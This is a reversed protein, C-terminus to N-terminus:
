TGSPTRTPNKSEQTGPSEVVDPNPQTDSPVDAPSVRQPRNITVNTSPAAQVAMLEPGGLEKLAAAALAPVDRVIRKLIMENLEAPNPAEEEGFGAESRLAAGTLEFRDYAEQANKSRDPRVTLESPDYWVILRGGSPGTLDADMAKLMPYLLGTTLSAAILEVDPAVNSKIASEEIQAASNGTWFPKGGRRALWTGHRTTPCWITGTYSIVTDTAARGPVGMGQQRASDVPSTVARDSGRVCWGIRGGSDARTRSTWRGSLICAFEYADLADAERQWIDLFGQRYHWGDGQCSVDIFLDLQARTLSRIFEFDVRKGPAVGIFPESADKNLYFATVPQGLAAPDNIVSERWAPYGLSNGGAVPRMSQSVPGFLATLAARIREVRPLNVSHSQFITVRNQHISGETWLWAVMEVFADSYKAESPLDGSPASVIVRHQRHMEMTTTWTRRIEKRVAGKGGLHKLAPWRHNMTTLSNHLASDFLRMPEDVVDARYVNEVPSWHTLGTVHDLTRVISGVEIQDHHVWGSQTLIETEDDTCWHNTDGMGTIVEIPVNITTAVRRLASDRQAILEPSVPDGFKIIQMLLKPDFNEPDNCEFGIPIPLAAAPSMPDAIAQSAVDVFIKAFPDVAEMGEAPPGQDPISLRARDYLMVGNGVLRSMLSTIIRKDTLDLETLAGLAHLTPSDARWGFQADPRWMRVVLSDPSIQRWLFADNTGNNGEGERIEFTNEGRIKRRKSPRIENASLVMWREFDPGEPIEPDPQEGVLWCEGPVSLHTSFEKLLHSQNGLRKLIDVAPGTEVLVPEADQDSVEAVVLRVRSIMNALWSVGYYLEGEIRWMAWAQDQASSYSIVLKRNPMVLRAAATMAGYAPLATGLALGELKDTGLSLSTRTRAM